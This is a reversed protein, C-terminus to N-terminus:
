HNIKYFDRHTTNNKILDTINEFIFKYYHSIYVIFISIIIVFGSYTIIKICNHSRSEQLTLLKTSSAMKLWDAVRRMYM